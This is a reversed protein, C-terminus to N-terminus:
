GLDLGNEHQFRLFDLFTVLVSCSVMLKFYQAHAGRLNFYFNFHPMQCGFSFFVKPFEMKGKALNKLFM